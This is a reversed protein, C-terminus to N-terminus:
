QKLKRELKKFDSPLFGDPDSDSVHHYDFYYFKADAAGIIIKYCRADQKTGEPGVKHLFVVNDDRNKIAEEIEDQTVIKFKHKYIASIRKESNVEKALESETVYLTKDRMDGMNKNYYKFINSSLIDPNKIILNVHNQMFRVLMGLKYVYSSEDVGRFAVPIAALNPMENLRYYNGGLMLNLFKYKADTKDNEFRVDTSIIFSYKPDKRKSDFDKFQIFEYPTVKWEKEIVDKIVINYELLPNDELVVLTTTKLFADLDAKTPVYEQASLCYFFASIVSLLIFRKM